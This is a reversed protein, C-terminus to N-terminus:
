GALSDLFANLVRTDFQTGSCRQLEEIAEFQTRATRYPRNTTLADYSDGVAIIRSGLPIENGKLGGPYGGGTFREHHHLVILSISKFDDMNKLAVPDTGRSTMGSVYAIGDCVLCNSWREPPPEPVHPSTVRKITM